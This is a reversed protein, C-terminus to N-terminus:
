IGTNINDESSRWTKEPARNKEPRRVEQSSAAGTALAAHGILAM